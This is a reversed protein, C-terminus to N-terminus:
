SITYKGWYGEHAQIPPTLDPNDRFLAIWLPCRDGTGSTDLDQYGSKLLGQRATAFDVLWDAEVRANRNRMRRLIPGFSEVDAGHNIATDLVFGRGAPSTIKPGPRNSASGKKDCWDRAFSWYLDLFVEWVATRWAPDHGLDQILGKVGEIGRIDDGRKGRLKDSYALLEDCKASRDPVRELAQLIMYLDGTGSCAGFITTTFGRGDGLFEAYGYYNYWKPNGNEPLSILQMIIDMQRETLYPVRELASVPVNTNRSTVHDEEAGSEVDDDDEVEEAPEECEPVVAVLWTTRSSQRSYLRVRGNEVGLYVADNAKGGALAILFQTDGTQLFVWRQLGSGDDETALGVGRGGSDGASLYRCTARTSDYVMVNYEGQGGPAETVAWRQEGSGDDEAAMTGSTSLYKGTCRFTLPVHLLRTDLSSGLLGRHPHPRAVAPPQQTQPARPPTPIAMLHAHWRRSPPELAGFTAAAAAPATANPHVAPLRNPRM